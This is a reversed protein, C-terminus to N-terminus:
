LVITSYNIKKFHSDKENIECQGLGNYMADYLYEESLVDLQRARREQIVLSAMVSDIAVPDTSLLISGPFNNHFTKWKRKGKGEGRDFVGFLADAIVLRTKTRIHYNKNLDSIAKILRKGHLVVPYPNFNSFRVTGFHNKLAGSNVAFIHNTLLPINIIHQAHTIVKPIYCKISRGDEDVVEERMSIEASTDAVALGYYFRLKLKDVLSEADDREIYHVPQDIKKRVIDSPIKKCLDYLYINQPKVNVVEVLQKIVANILQPATITFENGHNVFNFNPKIAIRDTPSYDKLLAFWAQRLDSKGTVALVGASVMRHLEENNITDLYTKHGGSPSLVTPSSIRMVLSRSSKNQGILRNNDNSTSERDALKEASVKPHQFFDGASLSGSIGIGGIFACLMRNFSRRDM